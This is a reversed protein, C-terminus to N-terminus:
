KAPPAAVSLEPVGAEVAKLKEKLVLLARVIAEKASLAGDTEVRMLFKDDRLKVRLHDACAKLADPAFKYAEANKVRVRNGEYAFVEPALKACVGGEPCEASLLEIEPYNKYGIATAVQWKAHDRGRGLIATAELMVRQGSLLKVIPIKDDKIAWKRDTPQLDGSYVTCPGEKSLTFLLTCSPCGEGKCTCESKFNLL